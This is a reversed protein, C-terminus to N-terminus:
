GGSNRVIDAVAEDLFDLRFFHFLFFPMLVAALPALSKRGVPQPLAASCCGVLLM